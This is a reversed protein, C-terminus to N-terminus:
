TKISSYFILSSFAFFYLPSLFAQNQHFPVKLIHDELHDFLRDSCSCYQKSALRHPQALEVLIQFPPIQCLSDFHEFQFRLLLSTVLVAQNLHFLAQQIRGGLQDFLRASRFHYEM